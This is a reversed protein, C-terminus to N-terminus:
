AAVGPQHEAVGLYLDELTQEDYKEAVAQMTDHCVLKGQALIGISTCSRALESLLHTNMCVTMGSAHLKEIIERLQNVGMLDLGSTPEDLFLVEPSHLIAQALGVRQRMGKSLTGVNRDALPVIGLFDLTERVAERPDPVGSM